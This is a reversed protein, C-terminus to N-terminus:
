DKSISISSSHDSFRDLEFQSDSVVPYNMSGHYDKSAEKQSLKQHTLNLPPQWPSADSSLNTLNLVSWSKLINRYTAHVPVPINASFPSMTMSQLLKLHDSYQNLGTPLRFLNMPTPLVPFNSHSRVNSSSYNDDAIEAISWIKNSKSSEENSIDSKESTFPQKEENNAMDNDFRSDSKSVDDDNENDDEEDDEEDDEGGEDIDDEHRTRATWTM